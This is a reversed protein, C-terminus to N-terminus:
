KSKIKINIKIGITIDEKIVKEEFVNYKKYKWGVFFAKTKIEGCNGYYM